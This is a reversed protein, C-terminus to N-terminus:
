NEKIFNNENIKTNENLVNGIWGFLSYVIVSIFLWIFQLVYLKLTQMYIELLVLYVVSPILGFTIILVIILVIFSVDKENKNNAIGSFLKVITQGFLVISLYSWDNKCLFTKINFKNISFLILALIILPLFTFILDILILRKNSNESYFYEKNRKM